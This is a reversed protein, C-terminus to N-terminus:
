EYNGRNVRKKPSDPDMNYRINIVSNNQQIHIHQRNKKGSFQYRVLIHTNIFLYIKHKGKVRYLIMVEQNGNENTFIHIVFIYVKYVYFYKCYSSSM